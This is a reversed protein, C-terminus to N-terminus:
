NEADLEVAHVGTWNYSVNAVNYFAFLIHCDQITVIACTNNELSTKKATATTMALAGKFNGLTISLVEIFSSNDECIETQTFCYLSLFFFNETPTFCYRRSFERNKRFLLVSGQASGVEMEEKHMTEWIPCNCISNEYSYNGVYKADFSAQSYQSFFYSSLFWFFFFFMQYEQSGSHLKPHLFIIQNTCSQFARTKAM